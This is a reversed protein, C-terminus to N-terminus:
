YEADNAANRSVRRRLNWRALAVGAAFFLVVFCVGALTRYDAPVYRSLAMAIASVFVAVLIPAVFRSV